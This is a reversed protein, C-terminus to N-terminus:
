MMSSTCMSDFAGEVRQQLRQFLRRFMHLEDEGGRFDALHRDGHQRAALSEIQAAHRRIAQDFMEAGDGLLFLHRGLVLRQGDIARAASPDTRSPSDSSSWAIASPSPPTM